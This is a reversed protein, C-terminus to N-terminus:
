KKKSSKAKPNFKLCKDVWFELDADRDYGEAEIFLYGNMPKGGHVMRSAGTRAALTEEEEPDIRAMIGGKYTGVCMKDDVMFCIGGMMKKQEFAVKKKELIGQIREATFTNDM